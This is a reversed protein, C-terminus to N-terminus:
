TDGPDRLDRATGADDGRLASRHGRRVGGASRQARLRCRLHLAPRRLQDRLRLGPHLAAGRHLPRRVPGIELRSAAEYENLTFAEEVQEEAGWCSSLRRFLERAGTPAHLQPRALEGGNPMQAVVRPSYTMAFSFPVLDLIHDPHLHSILIAGVNLYDEVARLKGFVGNGCDLLLSFGGERVLYGSCAGGGDQWSPSKGLVRVQM